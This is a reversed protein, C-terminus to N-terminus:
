LEQDKLLKIIPIKAYISKIKPDRTKLNESYVTCPGKAKLIINLSCRACGEGKCKCEKTLTYSKLDTKLPILGLRHAIMEDYLASSNKNITIDEIALTPVEEIIIRRITNVFFYDTEKILFVIKEKNHFLLKTDMKIM